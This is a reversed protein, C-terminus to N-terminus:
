HTQLRLTYAGRAYVASVDAGGVSPAYIKTWEASPTVKTYRDIVVMLDANDPAGVITFRKAQLSPIMVQQVYPFPEEIYVRAPQPLMLMYELIQKYSIGWYDFDFNKKAQVYGGALPNFYVYEYPHHKMIFGVASAADGIMAALVIVCVARFIGARKKAADILNKVALLSFGIISPYMYYMHRWGDYTRARLVVAAGLSSVIILFMALQLADARNLVWRHRIHRYIFWVIGLLATAVVSLLSTIAIMVFLYHWPIHPSTYFKGFYYTPVGVPNLSARIFGVFQPLVGDWLLPFFMISAATTLVIYWISMRIKQSIPKRSGLFLAVVCILALLLGQPRIAIAFASIFALLTVSPLTLDVARSLVYLAIIGTSLFPIDKSNYFSEAFFRPSMVLLAVGALAYLPEGIVTGLFFYFFVLSLAFYLFVGLHRSSVVDIHLVSQATQSFAHLIVEFAPGYYRDINASLERSGSVIREYNVRGLTIQSYEDISVGYDRYVWLGIGVFLLWFCIFISHIAARSGVLRRKM